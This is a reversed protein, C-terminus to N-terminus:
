KVTTLLAKRLPLKAGFKKKFEANARDYEDLIAVKRIEFFEDRHYQVTGVYIARDGPKLSVKMGGPFYVRNMERGGLELYLMGGLIYFPKNQSRVFFNQGLKAEIRGAFDALEPEKTLVRYKEDTILFMKNEVDGIVMGKIKQEDKHLPPVLEVRGVVITEGGGLGSLSDVPERAAPVVCASLATLLMLGAALPARSFTLPRTIM